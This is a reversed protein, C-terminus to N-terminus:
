NGINRNAKMSVPNQVNPATPAPAASSGTKRDISALHALMSRNVELIDSLVRSSEVTAATRAQEGKFREQVQRRTERDRAIPENVAPPTVASKPSEKPKNTPASVNPNFVKNSGSYSQPKNAGTPKTSTNPAVVNSANEPADDTDIDDNAFRRAQSDIMAQNASVTGSSTTGKLFQEPDVQKGSADVIEFHLHPGTVRGTAGAYGIIQGGGVRMGVSQGEQFRSLHAYKSVIGGAHQLYVINGYGRQVERKIIVGNAMAVVPTGVSAKIDIGKHNTSAGARPANRQGFPSTVRGRVPLFYKGNTAPLDPVLPPAKPFANTINASTAQTPATTTVSDNFPRRIVNNTQEGLKRYGRASANNIDKAKRVLDAYATKPDSPKYNPDKITSPIDVTDTTKKPTDPTGTGFTDKWWRSVFNGGQNERMKVVAQNLIIETLEYDTKLEGGFPSYNKLYNTGNDPIALAKIADIKQSPELKDDLLSLDTKGFYKFAMVSHKMFVPKFRNQIWIAWNNLAEKNAQTIGFIGAITALKKQTLTIGVEEGNIRVSNKLEEELELVKEIRDKEDPLIGYQAMRLTLFGAQDGKYKKYLYYAGAGVAAVGLATLLVPASIAGVIATGASALLPAAMMAGRLLLGGSGMAARGALGAAGRVLGFAKGPMLLSAGIGAGTLTSANLFSGGEGGEGDDASAQNGLFGGLGVGALIKALMGGKTGLFRTLGKLLGGGGLLGSLLGGKSDERNPTQNEERKKNARDRVGTHTDRLSQIREQWSGDRYGDGDSDGRKPRNGPLRANLLELMSLLIENQHVSILLEPNRSVLNGYAASTALSRISGLGFGRFIKGLLRAGGKIIGAGAKYVGKTLKWAMTFPLGVTYKFTGRVLDRFKEGATRYPNGRRDVLKNMESVSLIVHEGTTDMVDGDIERVSYIPKGTVSSRYGGAQLVRALLRPSTEGLVYVDRDRTALGFTKKLTWNAIKAVTVFPTLMAGYFGIVKNALNKLIPKGQIDYLGKNIDEVTLVENGESDVVPGVIDKIRRIVKGSIKDRYIGARLDRALLIPHRPNGKVYIDSYKIGQFLRGMMSGALGFAGKVGGAIGGLLNGYLKFTGGLISGVGSILKGTGARLGRYLGGRQIVVGNVNLGAELLRTQAISAELIKTQIELMKLQTDALERNPSSDGGGLYRRQDRSNFSNNLDLSNARRSNNPQSRSLSEPQSNIDERPSEVQNTGLTGRSRVRRARSQITDEQTNASTPTNPEPSIGSGRRLVPQGRLRRFRRGARNISVRSRRVLRDLVRRAEGRIRNANAELRERRDRAENPPVITDPGIEELLFQRIRAKDWETGYAGQKMFGMEELEEDYGMMAQRDLELILDNVYLGLDKTLEAAKARKTDIEYNEGIRVKKGAKYENRMFRIISAIDGRDDGSDYKSSDLYNNAYFANGSMADDMIRRQLISKQKNSLKNEPDIQGLVRKISDRTYTGGGRSMLTSTIYKKGRIGDMFRDKDFNYKTLGVSPDGTRFITVERLIRSLLGPIVTIWTKKVQNDIVAPATLSSGSTKIKLDDHEGLLDNIFRWMPSTQSKNQVYAKGATLNANLRAGFGRLRSNRGVLGNLRDGGVAALQDLVGGAFLDHGSVMGSSAMSGASSLGGTLMGATDLIDDIKRGLNTTIRDVMANMSGFTRTQLKRVIAAKTEYGLMEKMEIKLADPLSTNRTIASLAKVILENGKSVRQLLDENQYFQRYQLELTKRQWKFTINDNYGAIRSIGKFIGKFIDRNEAHRLYNVKDKFGQYKRQHAANITTERLNIAFIEQLNQGIISERASSEDEYNGSSDNSNAWANLKDRMGRPLIKNAAPSLGRAFEKLDNSMPRLKDLTKGYLSDLNSKGKGIADLSGAYERPLIRKLTKLHFDLSGAKEKAANKFSYKLKQVPTRGSNGFSIDDLGFDNGMDFDDLNIDDLDDFIDKKKAM